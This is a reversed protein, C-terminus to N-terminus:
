KRNRYGTNTEKILVNSYDPEDDSYARNLNNASFNYFMEDESEEDSIEYKINKQNIFEFLEYENNASEADILIMKM